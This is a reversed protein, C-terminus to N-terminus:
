VQSIMQIPEVRLPSFAIVLKQRVEIFEVPKMEKRHTTLMRLARDKEQDAM